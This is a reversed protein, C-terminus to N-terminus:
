PFFDTRAHVRIWVDDLASLTGVTQANRLKKKQEGPRLSSRLTGVALGISMGLRDYGVVESPTNGRVGERSAFSSSSARTRVVVESKLYETSEM